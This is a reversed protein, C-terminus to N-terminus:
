HPSRFQTLALQYFLDDHAREEQSRFVPSTELFLCSPSFGAWGPQGVERSTACLGMRSPKEVPKGSNQSSTYLVDQLFGKVSSNPHGVLFPTSLLEMPQPTVSASNPRHAWSLAYGEM